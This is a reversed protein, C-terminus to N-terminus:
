KASPACCLLQMRWLEALQLSKGRALTSEQSPRNKEESGHASRSQAWGAGLYANRGGGGKMYYVRGKTQSYIKVYEKEIAVENKECVVTSDHTIAIFLCSSKM